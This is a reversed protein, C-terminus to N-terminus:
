TFRINGSTHDVLLARLEDQKSLRCELHIHVEEDYTTDVIRAGVRSVVHMVNSIQSHPFSTKVAGLRHKVITTAKSLVRGAAAGYARSLGGVGLKTGGFYRTVVITLDTLGLRDIATLIPRGATGGPEGDDSARFQDGGTGIRYAFCNHTADFFERKMRAIFLEAEENTTTPYVTAIFRSGQVKMEARADAQITKYEDTM